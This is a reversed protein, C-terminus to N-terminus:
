SHFKENKYVVKKAIDNIISFLLLCCGMLCLISKNKLSIPFPSIVLFMIYECLMITFLEKKNQITSKNIYIFCFIFYAFINYYKEGFLFGILFFILLFEKFQSISNPFYLFLFIIGLIIIINIFSMLSEKYQLLYNLYVETENIIISSSFSLFLITSLVIWISKRNHIILILFILCYNLSCAIGLCICSFYKVYISKTDINQLYCACFILALLEMGGSHFVYMYPISILSCLLIQLRYKPNQFLLVSALILFSICIFSVCVFNGQQIYQLEATPRLLHIVPIFVSVIRSVLLSLPTAGYSAITIGNSAKIGSFFDRLFTHEQLGEIRNLYSGKTILLVALFVLTIGWYAVCIYTKNFSKFHKNM